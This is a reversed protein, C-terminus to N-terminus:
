QYSVHITSHDILDVKNGVLIIPKWPQNEATLNRILPLWHTTVRELSLEDNVAYVICIVHAKGIEENM